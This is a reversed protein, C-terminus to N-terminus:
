QSETGPGDDDSILDDLIPAFAKILVTRLEVPVGAWGEGWKKTEKYATYPKESAPGPYGLVDEICDVLMVVQSDDGVADKIPQNFKEAGATGTDADHIVFFTVGLVRFYKALGIISAKGRAKVIEFDCLLRRRHGEPLHAIAQRLVIDETDGEVILVKKAFFARAAYDDIKLLMKVHSQDSAQLSKFADSVSFADSFTQKDAFRFRNLVQRPRRSLDIIFPSHTTSIIQSSGSSLEYIADRMQNAASPHLYTEPEEFGIILSRVGERGARKELWQQRFRLLGFVASRLMGTGQRDLTTRINSSMELDFSPKLSEARSLNAVAHIAAEPFIRALVDNLSNMLKGFDTRTDRPDLEKALEELHVLAAKYNASGDRVTGFLETLTKNLADKVTTETSQDAPILLYGPLRSLVVTPIGGPNTAWTEDDGIDWVEDISDLLKADAKKDLHAFVDTITKEAVGAAIFDNPTSCKAFKNALSRKRSRMEILVDSGLTYTKRYTIQLGSEKSDGDVEHPFVRGRFGRWAEADVPVNRFVAELVIKKGIPKTEGTEEDRESYFDTQPLQKNISLLHDLARLTSSKGANNTGIIFTADGCEITVDHLRRFGEIRLTHLRM